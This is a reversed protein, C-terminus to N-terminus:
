RVPSWSPKSVRSSPESVQMAPITKSDTRPNVATKTRGNRQNWGATLDEMERSSSPLNRNTSKAQFSQVAVPGSTELRRGDSTEFRVFVMVSKGQPRTQEWPLELLIGRNEADNNTFFLKTESPVFKWMGIRQTASSATPDIVSVTLQGAHLVTEGSATQPQLLLAIGDEGPQGDFDKSSSYASNIVVQTVFLQDSNKGNSHNTKTNIANANQISRNQTAANKLTPAMPPELMLSSAGDADRPQPAPLRDLSPLDIPDAPQISERPDDPNIELEFLDNNPPVTKQTPLRERTPQATTAAPPVFGHPAYDYPALEIEPATLIPGGADYIVGDDPVMGGDYIVDGYIVERPAVANVAPSRSEIKKATDTKGAAQLAALADDRQAKTLYYKDEIDLIEARLLATERRCRPDSNCGIAIVCIVLFPLLGRM